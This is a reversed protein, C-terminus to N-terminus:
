DTPPPSLLGWGDYQAGLSKALRTLENGLRQLAAVDPTLDKIARIVYRPNDETDSVYVQFGRQELEAALNNIASQRNTFFWFELSQPQTTDVGSQELKQVTNGDVTRYKHKKRAYGYGLFAVIIAIILGAFDMM